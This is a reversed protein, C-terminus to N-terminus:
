QKVKIIDIISDISAKLVAYLSDDISNRTGNCMNAFALRFVQESVHVRTGDVTVLFLGTRENIPSFELTHTPYESKIKELVNKM